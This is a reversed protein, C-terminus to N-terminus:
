DSFLPEFVVKISEKMNDEGKFIDAVDRTITQRASVVTRTDFGGNSWFKMNKSDYSEIHLSIVRVNAKRFLAADGKLMGLAASGGTEASRSVGDWEVRLSTYLVRYKATALADKTILTPVILIANYEKALNSMVRRYFDTGTGASFNGQGKVSNLKERFEKPQIQIIEARIGKEAFKTSLYSAIEPQWIEKSDRVYETLKTDTSPLYECMVSAPAIVFRNSSLIEKAPSLLSFREEVPASACGVFLILSLCATLLLMMSKRM